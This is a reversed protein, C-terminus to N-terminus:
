ARGGRRVERLFFAGVLVNILFVVILLVFSLAAGMGYETSQIIKQQILVPMTIVRGGGLLVPSTFAGMAMNFALLGSSILGYRALPVIVRAFIVGRRAGLIEGAEELHIPITQVVSCLILIAIPLTYQVLGIVAGVENNILTLPSSILGVSILSQNIFGSPSLVLTLGLLKIVDTVLSNTLILSLILISWGRGMRALAYATPFGMALTIFTAILSLWLTRLVVSLYFPDTFIELYNTLGADESVMGMGLDDYFSTIVFGAQPVALLLFSIIGPLILFYEWKPSSVKPPPVATDLASM